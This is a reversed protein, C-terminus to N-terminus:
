VASNRHYQLPPCRVVFPSGSLLVSVLPSFFSSIFTDELVGSFDLASSILFFRLREAGGDAFLFVPPDFGLSYTYCEKIDGAPDSIILDISVAFILRKKRSKIM